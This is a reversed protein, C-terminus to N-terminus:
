SRPPGEIKEIQGDLLGVLASTEPRTPGSVLFVWGRSALVRGELWGSQTSGAMALVHEHPQAVWEVKVGSAELQEVAVDALGKREPTFLPEIAFVLLADGLCLADDGCRTLGAEEGAVDLANIFWEIDTNSSFAAAGNYDKIGSLADYILEAFAGLGSSM